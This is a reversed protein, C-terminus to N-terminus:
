YLEKVFYQRFPPSEFGRYLYVRYCIELRGCEVVRGGKRLLFLIDYKFVFILSLICGLIVQNEDSIPM